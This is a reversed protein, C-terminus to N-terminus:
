FLRFTITQWTSGIRNSSENKFLDVVALNVQDNRSKTAHVDHNQDDPEELIRHITSHSVKRQFVRMQQVVIDLQQWHQLMTLRAHDPIAGQEAVLSKDKQKSEEQRVFRPADFHLM